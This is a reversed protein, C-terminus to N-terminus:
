DLLLKFSGNGDLKAIKKVQDGSFPTVLTYVIHLSNIEEKSINIIKGIIFPITPSNSYVSDFKTDEISIASKPIQAELKEIFICNLLFTLIAITQKM